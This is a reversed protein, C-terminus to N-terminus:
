EVIALRIARTAGPADLRCLYVGPRVSAPPAWPLEHEGAPLAGDFLTAIRRGALDFVGLRVRGTQATTFRLKTAYAVPDPFAALGVPAGATGEVAVTTSRNPLILLEREDFNAVVLDPIGDGTFDGAVVDVSEGHTAVDFFPTLTGDGSGLLVSVAGGACAVALDLRGDRNFDAAAVASSNLSTLFGAAPGFGGDGDGRLVFVRNLRDVASLDLHGDGDLDAVAIRRPDPGVAYLAPSSLGGGSISRLVSVSGAFSNTVAVDLRGDEDFDGLALDGPSPGAPYAVPAGFLGNGVGPLISVAGDLEDAVVLDPVGDATLDAIQIGAAGSGAALNILNTFAGAGNGLWISAAGQTVAGALDINADGDIAGVAVRHLRVTTPFHLPSAFAAPGTQILVYMSDFSTAPIVLDTRGDRNLDAATLMGPNDPLPVIRPPGFLDTARACAAWDM